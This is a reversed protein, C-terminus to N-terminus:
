NRMAVMQHGEGEIPIEKKAMLTAGDVIWVKPEDRSSVFVSGTGPITTLHYPSPSLARSTFKGSELDISVLRDSEKAAVFLHTQDESLDLGHIEGGIEFSRLDRGTVLDIEVVQGNEADAVFLSSGDYAMALHEPAEGAIMNRLVIGQELDVESVTGNGANSIYVVGPDTGFIAYNPMAGTPIWASLEFTELAVVSIGDGNPHTSVAFRGDPSIAVHHVAGPVEIKRLLDGTAADIVSLLSIGADTAGLTKKPKAHHAAHEDESVASPKSMEAADERDIEMYSGAILYRSNPSGALGHVAETGAVRGVSQGTTADVIRIADASGEPIFVRATDANAATASLATSLMLMAMKANPKM